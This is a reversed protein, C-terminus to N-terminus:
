PLSGGKILLSVNGQTDAAAAAPALSGEVVIEPWKRRVNKSRGFGSNSSKRGGEM